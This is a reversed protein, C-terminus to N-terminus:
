DAECDILILSTTGAPDCDPLFEALFWEYLRREMLVNFDPLCSLLIDLAASKLVAAESSDCAVTDFDIEGVFDGWFFTFELLTLWKM